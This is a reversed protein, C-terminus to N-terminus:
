SHNNKLETVQDWTMPNDIIVPADTEIWLRAGCDLPHLPDYVIRSPGQIEINSGYLNSDGDKVSVVPLLTTRDKNMGILNRNVNIIKTM